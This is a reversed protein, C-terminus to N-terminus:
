EDCSVRYSHPVWAGWKEEYTKKNAEFLLQREEQKLKNFSASLHHHVFVDDACALSLGESEIRRCYDDDEFFGRGYDESIPGCLEYTSRPMMVCFFALTKMLYRQGMSALTYNMVETPMQKINSYNTDIRAENGINNTTTGLLGLGSTHQFHRLLTMLWGQTVVTDNNLLVLYDGTAISLGVNNGAAFGLNENNLVVQVNPNEREVSKLYNPTDDSSANDVVIVELNPYDSRELVSEICEQTLEVNNFTLIIVSIRPMKVGDLAVLFEQGRHSWTQESAFRHRKGIDKDSEIGSGVLASTVGSVFADVSSARWVNDGFQEIEPLDTCVVPKGAALYEYVKVPNTALTLPIVKFPLLCVDFAHLYFPLTNYPVEGTFVINSLDRLENQAGVTDNGVLLVLSKPHGRAIARVLELDFWEAIAGFYGIIQRGQIDEYVHEPRSSFHGYEVANRVLAVNPNYEQAFDELWSSTVTVLDAGSLMEKEIEALKEPVNGFGEHHDMCDYVRYSNPIRKVLPYWFAHQIISLSSLAGSDKIFCALSQQMMAITIESPSDFYIAPADKVHLKIQFLDELGPLREAQYGPENKDVFHNSFYFVRRPSSALSQALHQPRQTRFHWDIVGFLFVDRSLYSDGFDFPKLHKEHSQHASNNTLSKAQRQIAYIKNKLTIKTALSLPLLSFIKKSYVLLFSKLALRIPNNSLHPIGNSAKLLKTKLHSNEQLLAQNKLDLASAKQNLEEIHKAATVVQENALRGWTSVEDIKKNYDLIQIDRETLQEYLSNAWDIVELHSDILRYSNSFMISSTLTPLYEPKDACFAIYYKPNKDIRTADVRGDAFVQFSDLTSNGKSKQYILNGSEPSQCLYDVAAFQVKLLEDLEIFSLEKVHFHNPEASFKNYENRDPSSLILFGTSSLVRKLESLMTKQESLHEVTEFSIVVDVSNDPLPIDLASAKQFSLNSIGKYKKEAVKITDESIDMGLVSTANGSLIASGYGEGSAIDLVKKGVVFKNAITYRHYHELQIEGLVSPVYRELELQTTEEVNDM